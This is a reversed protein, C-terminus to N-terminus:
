SRSAMASQVAERLAERTLEGKDFVGAAYVLLEQRQEDSLAKSTVVVVPVSTTEARERLLRLIDEGQMGPLILDLLVLDPLKEHIMDLAAEGTEAELADVPSVFTRLIYRDRTDDDIILVRPLPAAAGAVAKVTAVFDTIDFPKRIVAKVYLPDLDVVRKPPAATCVIVPIKLSESALFELVDTGSVNPMMMDLVIAAFQHSRLLELAERGNPALVTAYGHRHLLAEILKQTPEDDDVVLIPLSTEPPV